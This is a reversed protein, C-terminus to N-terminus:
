AMIDLRKGKRKCQPAPNIEHINKTCITAQISSGNFDLSFRDAIKIVNEKNTEMQVARSFRTLIEIVNLSIFVFDGKKTFEGGKTVHVVFVGDSYPSCTISTIETLPIRYKTLLSKQDMVLFSKSSLVLLTHTIKGNNRNVKDVVDAFIIKQDNTQVALKSYKTNIRLRVYDGRFQVPVSAPYSSKKEKFLDSATVKTGLVERRPEDIQIRYMTARWRRFIDKLKSHTSKHMPSCPPWNRDLPSMTPLQTKLKLLYKSIVYRRMFAIIKPAANSRFLKRYEKRVRWGIFFKKIIGVAWMCKAEYRLRKYEKRALYGRWLSTILICSLRMKQYKSKAKYGKYQAAILTVSQRMKQYKTRDRWGKYIKQILTALYHMRLHRRQELDFLTRPNRIFIKTRGYAYEEKKYGLHTLLQVMGDKAAGKWNPWTKPCLMKYRTLCLEYLQRFAYGARRVRVNEMLGLYRVQHRVLAENFDNPAKDDNPKICRIYNPDKTLLNKMLEAISSKFQFATTPPRKQSNHKPNGEPFLTKLLLHDCKYMLQSLDRFLLDNNKDIFGTVCYNVNGAYHKLRFSEHDISKDSKCKSRSEYHPHGLISKTTNMKNLFTQDSVDGPRLCEEDLMSLIGLNSKEILDCIAINNFFDINTWEIGEVVYEEQEEKLTLEIFIQQLKENCYNIIFQEFGNGEFIEFGYIDLVGMVKRGTGDRVKKKRYTKRRKPNDKSEERISNNITKIAWTFMRDYIAKCLADRAYAAQAPTLSTTVKEGKQGITRKTLAHIMDEKLCELQECVDLIENEKQFGVGEMGNMTNVSTFKVNGLKLISGLLKYISLIEEDTFGLVQMAKQTIAFQEKDNIKDIKQTGSQSLYYYDAPNRTLDLENMLVDPAGALLQYFIHFNREGAAQTVVRSKELLYNTIVGGMPDGKFDFEIDMYKGFRSSNDNRNTKANGFAELVPNSQLLQEKVTDVDKGKGCVAAVYQMVIKSAETKGAGSEGSIIVCQDRNKDRMARYADDTIAYIHPPLEYLNMGRYESIKNQSFLPLPKYPNVSVVVKGIYTYIENAKFRKQLNEVFGDETLPELLVCDSVGVMNDLLSMMAGDGARSPGNSLAM